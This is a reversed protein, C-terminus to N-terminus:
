ELSQVDQTRKVIRVQFLINRVEIVIILLGPILILLVFGVRERLLSALFGMYPISLAAKGVIDSENVSWVDADENADGKTEFVTEGDQHSIGIVRHTVLSHEKTLSQNSTVPIRFTIIDGKKVMDPGLLKIIVLSGVKIAPQMSGGLVILPEYGGVRLLRELSQVQMSSLVVALILVAAAMATMIQKFLKSIQM